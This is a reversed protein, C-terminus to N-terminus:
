IAIFNEERLQVTKFNDFLWLFVPYIITVRYQLLQFNVTAGFNKTTHLLIIISLIYKGNKYRIFSSKHSSSLKWYSFCYNFRWHVDYQSGEHLLLISSWFGLCGDFSVSSVSDSIYSSATLSRNGLIRSYFANNINIQLSEKEEFYMCLCFRLILVIFLPFTIVPLM